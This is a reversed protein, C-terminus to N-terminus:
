EQPYVEWDKNEPGPVVKNRHERRPPNFQGCYFMNRERATIGGAWFPDEGRGPGTSHEHVRILWHLYPRETRPNREGTCCEQIVNVDVTYPLGREAADNCEDRLRGLTRDVKAHFRADLVMERLTSQNSAFIQLRRLKFPVLSPDFKGNITGLLIKYRINILNAYDVM